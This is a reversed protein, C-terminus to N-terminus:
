LNRYLIEKKLNKYDEIVMENCMEQASIKPQWGLVEQALTSDGLLTDVESPRFYRSNIRIIIQGVKAGTVMNGEINVITGVENLGQGSFKIKIGLEKCAWV